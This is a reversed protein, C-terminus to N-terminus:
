VQIETLLSDVQRIALKWLGAFILLGIVIAILIPPFVAQLTDAFLMPLATLVGVVLSFFPGLLSGSMSVYRSRVTERFDPFRGAVYVGLASEELVVMLGLLLLSVVEEIGRKSLFAIALLLGCTFLSGLIFTLYMKARVLKRADLPAVYLNWIASGEQGISTMSLLECFIAIPVVYPLIIEALSFGQSSGGFPYLSIWLSAALVFPIALFRAMERRRTLSRFDKRIIASEAIDLGPIRFKSFSAQYPQTGLRISVPVPIWYARRLGVALAFLALM